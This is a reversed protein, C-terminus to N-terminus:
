CREPAIIGVIGAVWSDSDIPFKVDALVPAVPDNLAMDHALVADDDPTRRGPRQDIGDRWKFQPLRHTLLQPIEPMCLQISWLPQTRTVILRKGHQRQAPCKVGQALACDDGFRCSRGPRSLRKIGSPPWDDLSCQGPAILM